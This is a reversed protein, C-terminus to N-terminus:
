FVVYCSFLEYVLEFTQTCMDDIRVHTSEDYARVFRVHVIREIMRSIQELIDLALVKETSNM